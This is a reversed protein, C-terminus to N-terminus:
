ASATYDEYTYVIISNDVTYGELSPVLKAVDTFVSEAYDESVLNPYLIHAIYAMKIAGPLINNIYVLNQYSDLTDFSGKFKDWQNKKVYDSNSDYDWSRFSILKDADDYNALAEASQMQVSSTGAYDKAFDENVAYYPIGNVYAPTHNYSSNNQCIYKGMNFAIYTQKDSDKLDKTFGRIEDYVKKGLAAYDYGLKECDGGFLFGMLLVANIEGDGDAVALRIEPIGAAALDSRYVGKDLAGLSHDILLVQIGGTSELSTDLAKFESWANDDMVRNSELGLKKLDSNLLLRDADAYSGSPNQIFYGVGAGNLGGATVFPVTMNTGWAVVNTLPYPVETVKEKGAKDLSIINVKASEGNILKQVLKADDEDVEDNYDADAMPYDEFTAEKSIIKNIIDLDKQDIVLDENANGYVDLCFNAEMNFKKGDGDDNKLLVFGGAVGAILLAAVVGIAITQKNNLAM